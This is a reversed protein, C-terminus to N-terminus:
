DKINAIKNDQFTVVTTDFRNKWFTWVDNSIDPTKIKPPYGYAMLVAEKSMGEALTGSKINSQEEPTFKSFEGGEAMVNGESFYHGFFEEPTMQGHKAIYVLTYVTNTSDDAFLIKKDSCEKITVKTGVPLMEGQHYNTSPIPNLKENKYEYWINVKTFYPKGEPSASVAQSGETLDAKGASTGACGSFFGLCCICFVILANSLYKTVKHM